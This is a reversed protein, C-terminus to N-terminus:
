EMKWKLKSSQDDWWWWYQQHQGCLPWSRPWLRALSSHVFISWSSSPQPCFVWFVFLASLHFLCISLILAFRTTSISACHVFHWLWRGRWRAWGRSWGVAVTSWALLLSSSSILSDFSHLITEPQAEWTAVFALPTHACSAPICWICKNCACLIHVCLICVGCACM